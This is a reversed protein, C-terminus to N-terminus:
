NKRENVIIADLIGSDSIYDNFGSNKKIFDTFYVTKTKHRKVVGNKIIKEIQANNPDQTLGFNKEIKRQIFAKSFDRKKDRIGLRECAIKLATNQDLDNSEMEIRNLNINPTKGPLFSGQITRRIEYESFLQEMMDKLKSYDRQNVIQQSLSRLIFTTSLITPILLGVGAAIWSFAFGVSGGTTITSVIVKVNLGENLTGYAINIDCGYLLLDLILRGQFFFIKLAGKMERQKLFIAIKSVIMKIKQAIELVETSCQGDIIFEEIEGGRINLALKYIAKLKPKKSKFLKRKRVLFESKKIISKKLKRISAKEVSYKKLYRATLSGVFASILFYDLQDIVWVNFIRNYYM